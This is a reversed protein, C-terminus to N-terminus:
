GAGPGAPAAASLSVTGAYPPVSLSRSTDVRFGLGFESAWAAFRGAIASRRFAGADAGIAVVRYPPVLPRLDVVITDGASRISTTAVVRNGNVAVAEAGAAFLANVVLQLDQDHIRYASQDAPGSPVHEADTLTVVAGPGTLGTVGAAELLQTLQRAQEESLRVARAQQQQARSLDRRLGAVTADLRAVTGQSQEILRILQAKRPAEAAGAARRAHAALVFGFSAVACVISLLLASSRRM